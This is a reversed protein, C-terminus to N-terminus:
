NLADFVEPVLPKRPMLTLKHSVPLENLAEYGYTKVFLYVGTQRMSEKLLEARNSMDAQFDPNLKMEEVMEALEDPEVLELMFKPIM